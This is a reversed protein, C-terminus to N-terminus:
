PRLAVGQREAIIHDIMAQWEDPLYGYDPMKPTAADLMEETPERMASIAALAAATCRQWDDHGQSTAIARAIREFMTM